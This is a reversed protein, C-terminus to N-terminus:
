LALKLSDSANGFLCNFLCVVLWVVLCIYVLMSKLLMFDFSCVCVGVCVCARPNLRRLWAHINSTLCSFSFESSFIYLLISLVKVIAVGVLEKGQGRRGCIYRDGYWRYLPIIFYLKLTFLGISITISKELMLEKGFLMKKTTLSICGSILMKARFTSHVKLLAALTISYLQKVCKLSCRLM